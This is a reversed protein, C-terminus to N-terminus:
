SSKKKQWWIEDAMLRIIGVMASKIKYENGYDFKLDDNVVGLVNTLVVMFMSPRVTVFIRVPEFEFFIIIVEGKEYRSQYWSKRIFYFWLCKQGYKKTKIFIM